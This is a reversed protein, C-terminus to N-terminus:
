WQYEETGGTANRIADVLKTASDIPLWITTQEDTDPDVVALAVRPGAATLETRALASTGDELDVGEWESAHLIGAGPDAADPDCWSPCSDYDHDTETSM